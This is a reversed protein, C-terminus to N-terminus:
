KKELIKWGAESANKIQADSHAENWYKFKEKMKATLEQSKIWFFKISIFVRYIHTIGWLVASIKKVCVDGHCANRNHQPLIRKSLGLIASTRNSM